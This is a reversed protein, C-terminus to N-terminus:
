TRRTHRRLGRRRVDGLSSTEQHPPQRNFLHTAPSNHATNTTPAGPTPEGTDAPGRNPNPNTATCGARNNSLRAPVGVTSVNPAPDPGTTPPADAVTTTNPRPPTGNDPTPATTNFTVANSGVTDVNTDTNAAPTDRGSAGTNFGSGDSDATADTVRIVVAEGLRQVPEVRCFQDAALSGPAVDLVDFQGCKRPHFPEVVLTEMALKAVDWGGFELVVVVSL